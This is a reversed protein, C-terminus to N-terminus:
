ITTAKSIRGGDRSRRILQCAVAVGIVFIGLVKWRDIEYCYLSLPFVDSVLRFVSNNFKALM